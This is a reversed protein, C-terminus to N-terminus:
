FEGWCGLCGMEAGMKGEMGLRGLGKGVLERDGVGQDVMDFIGCCFGGRNGNVGFGSVEDWRLVRKGVDGESKGVLIGEKEGLVWTGLGWVVLELGWLM